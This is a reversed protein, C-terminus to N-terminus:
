VPWALWLMVIAAPSVVPVIVILVLINVLSLAGSFVSSILEGGRSQITQAISSLQQRITSTEDMLEPFRATLTEQLTTLYGPAAAILATTERVLTPIILLILALFILAAIVTIIGVSVIRSCGWKELRDAIPDFCYAIAGGLVFPLIVDGLFWLVILFVATVISWYKFQQQVPLAM